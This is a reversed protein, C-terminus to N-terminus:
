TNIRWNQLDRERTKEAAEDVAERDGKGRRPLSQPIRQQDQMAKDIYRKEM